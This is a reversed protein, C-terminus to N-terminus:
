RNNKFRMYAHHFIICFGVIGLIIAIMGFSIGFFVAFFFGLEEVDSSNKLTKNSHNM